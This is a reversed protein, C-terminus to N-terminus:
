SARAILLVNAFPTRESMPEPRSDFGCEQLLSRWRALGHCHLPLLGHGRILLILRDSWCSIRFRLGADADGVRLLLVGGSPLAARVRRLVERQATEPMYHLVDLLV